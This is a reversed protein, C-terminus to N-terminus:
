IASWDGSDIVMFHGTFLKKKIAKKIAFILSVKLSQDSFKKIFENDVQAV